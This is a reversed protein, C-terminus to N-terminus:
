GKNLISLLQNFASDSSSSSSSGQGLYPLLPNDKDNGKGYSYKSRGSNIYNMESSYSYDKWDNYYNSMSQKMENAKAVLEGYVPAPDNGMKEAYVWIDRNM